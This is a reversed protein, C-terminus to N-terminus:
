DEKEAELTFMDTEINKFPNEEQKNGEKNNETRASTKVVKKPLPRNDKRRFKPETEHLELEKSNRISETLDEINNIGQKKIKNCNLM